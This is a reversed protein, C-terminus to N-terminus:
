LISISGNKHQTLQGNVANLLNIQLKEAQVAALGTASDGEVQVDM